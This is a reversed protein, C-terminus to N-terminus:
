PRKKRKMAVATGEARAEEATWRHGTGKAQVACGGKRALEQRKLPHMAKFGRYVKQPEDPVSVLKGAWNRVNKM